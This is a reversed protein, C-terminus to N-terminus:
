DRQKKYSRPLRLELEPIEGDASVRCSDKAKGVAYAAALPPSGFAASGAILLALLARWPRFPTLLFASLQAQATRTQPSCAANFSRSRQSVGSESEIAGQRHWGACWGSCRHRAESM